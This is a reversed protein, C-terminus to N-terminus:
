LQKLQLYLNYLDKYADSGLKKEDGVAVLLAAMQKETPRWRKKMHDDIFKVYSNAVGHIAAKGHAVNGSTLKESREMIDKFWSQCLELVEKDTKNM